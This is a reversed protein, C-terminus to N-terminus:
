EGDDSQEKGRDEGRLHQRKIEAFTGTRFRSLRNSLFDDHQGSNKNKGGQRDRKDKIEVEIHRFLLNFFLVDRVAALSLGIM